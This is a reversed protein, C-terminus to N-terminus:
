EMLSPLFQSIIPIYTVMMLVVLSAFVFPWVKKVVDKFPLGTIGCAVYVNVGVPPTVMGIALNMVMVVGLVLPDYGLQNAVPLIIPSLIYLASTGDIVCGAILLIVNVILLFIVVNGGAFNLLMDGIAAAIGEITIVWAFFNAMGVIFMVVATQNVSTILIEKCQALNMSKYIFFGVFLGYAASVAAAETPTFIGGYIGGLIIVPMMLGWFANKFASWREKSTAKPLKDLHTNRTVYFTAVVLAFGMMLGPIIGAMFLKGISVGTVSGYIVFSISPPIIVGIGGATAMLAAATSTQYGVKTMAPIIIGGLAAVTAPGSGSIAAFFCAVAVCVIALGGRIHGVFSQAFAILKESIGAKEMINGGLIFFPIALLVFPSTAAFFINPFIDFGMGMQTLALLGAGALSVGIPVNLLVLIAFSAFLIVAVM